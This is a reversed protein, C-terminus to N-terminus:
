KKRHRVTIDVDSAKLVFRAIRLKPGWAVNVYDNPGFEFVDKCGREFEERTKSEELLDVLKTKIYSTDVSIQM